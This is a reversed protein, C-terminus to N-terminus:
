GRGIRERLAQILGAIKGGSRSIISAFEDRQSILMSVGNVIVDVIKYGDGLQKVRWQVGLPPEGGPRVIQSPVLTEQGSLPKAAGVNFKVGTAGSFRDSYTQVVYDTFVRLYEQREADSARRWYQGLVFRGIVPVAFAERFIASFRKARANDAMDSANVTAVARNGMARIFDEAGNAAAHASVSVCLAFGALPSVLRHLM